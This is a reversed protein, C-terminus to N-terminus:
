QEDGNEKYIYKKTLLDMMDLIDKLDDPMSCMASGDIMFNNKKYNSEFVITMGQSGVCGNEMEIDKYKLLKANNIFTVLEAMDEKSIEATSQSLSIIEESGEKYKIVESKVGLLRESNITTKTRVPEPVVAGLNTIEMRWTGSTIATNLGIAGKSFDVVDKVKGNIEGNCSTLSVALVLFVLIRRM